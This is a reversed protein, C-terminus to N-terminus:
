GLLRAAETSSGRIRQALPGNPQWHQGMIHKLQTDADDITDLLEARQNADLAANAYLGKLKEATPRMRQLDQRQTPDAEQYAASIRAIVGLLELKWAQLVNQKM